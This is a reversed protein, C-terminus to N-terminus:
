RAQVATRGAEALLGDEVTRRFGGAARGLSRERDAIRNLFDVAATRGLLLADEVVRQTVDGQGARAAMGRLQERRAQYLSYAQAARARTVGALRFEEIRGRSPMELGQEAAASGLVAAEFAALLEDLGLTDTPSESGGTFLAAMVQRAFSPDVSMLRSVVEGSLLGQKQMNQLLEAVRQLGRQTARTIFTDYDFPNEAVQQNYEDMMAQRFEPSVVAQYLDDVTVDMGAYVYFADRLAQSGEELARYTQLRDRLENPDIGQDIFAVYDLPDDQAPDFLGFERLVDRYSRVTDLYERESSFRMAGTDDVIGPFIRRYEPSQRISAVVEEAPADDRILDVVRDLLGVQDLGPFMTRIEELLHAM